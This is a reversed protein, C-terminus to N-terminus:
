QGGINVVNRVGMGSAQSVVPGGVSVVQSGSGAGGHRSAINLESYAGNTAANIVAGNVVSIQSNGQLKSIGKTSSINMVAHSGPGAANVAAGTIIVQQNNQANVPAHMSAGLLLAMGSLAIGGLKLFIQKVAKVELNSFM